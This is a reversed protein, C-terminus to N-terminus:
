GETPQSKNISPRFKGNSGCQSWRDGSVGLRVHVILRDVRGDAVDEEAEPRLLAVLAGVGFEQVPVGLAPVLRRERGEDGAVARGHQGEALPYEPVPVVRVVGSGGTRCRACSSSKAPRRPDNM